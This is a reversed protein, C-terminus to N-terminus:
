QILELSARERTSGLFNALRKDLTALKGGHHIALALLYADTVQQPGIAGVNLNAWAETLSLDDKWFQHMPHKTNSALADFAEKTTVARPSFSQSSLIRVFATETMPCTAWGKSSNAAFWREVSRHFEHRPWSLALLVSVDLLYGKM